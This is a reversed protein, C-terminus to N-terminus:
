FAAPSTDMVALLALSEDADIKDLKKRLKDRKDRNMKEAAAELARDQLAVERGYATDGIDIKNTLLVVLREEEEETWRNYQPPAKLSEM